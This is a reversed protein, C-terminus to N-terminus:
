VRQRKVDPTPSTSSSSEKQRKLRQVVLMPNQSYHLKADIRTVEEKGAIENNLIVDKCEDLIKRLKSLNVKGNKTDTTSPPVTADTKSDASAPATEPTDEPFKMELYKEVLALDEILLVALTIQPPSYLFVVDTLLAETIRKKCNTYIQGLYELDVKGTLISQIDLFFGHLARYPHHNLLAFHLSELLNFEYELIAEKKSKTKQSFSDIGIFYNESKCALFIATLLINKPHIEMVSNSLFFKRFFSIATATVETPLNLSSSFQKVKRAYFSVLKLEEEVTLPMAQSEIAALEEETLEPHSAKFELIQDETVKAAKSNLDKRLKELQDKKFSWIRYQTSTRYLDDDSIRTSAVSTSNPVADPKPTISKSASSPITDM